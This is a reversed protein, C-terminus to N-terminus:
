SQCWVWNSVGKSGQRLGTPSNRDLKAEL